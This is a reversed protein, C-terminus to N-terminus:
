ACPRSRPVLSCGPRDGPTSHHGPHGPGGPKARCHSHDLRQARVQRKSRGTSPPRDIHAPLFPFCGRFFRQFSGYSIGGRLAPGDDARGYFGRSPHDPAPPSTRCRGRDVLNSAPDPRGMGRCLTGVLLTPATGAAALLGMEAPTAHLALAAIFPIALRSLASGFLSITQGVWLNMFDAHRWLSAAPLNTVPIPQKSSQQNAM